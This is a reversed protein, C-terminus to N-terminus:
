FMSSRRNWLHGPAWIKPEEQCWVFEAHDYAELEALLPGAPFPYLQELRLIYVDDIGAAERAEVLDFYVKGSCM